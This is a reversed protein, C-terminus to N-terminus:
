GDGRGKRRRPADNTLLWLDRAQQMRLWLGPGNGVLKGIARALKLNIDLQGRRLKKVDALSLGLRRAAKADSLGLESFEEAVLSGPHSPKRSPGTVIYEGEDPLRELEVRVRHGLAAFVPVFEDLAAHYDPDELMAVARKPVGATKALQNQTLGAKLREWFLELKLGLEPPVDIWVVRKGRPARAEVSPRAPVDDPRREKDPVILFSELWGELAEQAVPEIPKKGRVFTQCGPCDPFEALTFKGERHVIAAYRM